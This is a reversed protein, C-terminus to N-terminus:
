LLFILIQRSEKRLHISNVLTLQSIANAKHTKRKDDYELVRIAITLFTLHLNREKAYFVRCLM